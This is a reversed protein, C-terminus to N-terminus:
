WASPFDVESKGHGMAPWVRSPFVICVGVRLRKCAIVSNTAYATFLITDSFVSNLSRVM